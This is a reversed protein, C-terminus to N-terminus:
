GILVIGAIDRLAEGALMFGAVPPVFSVSGPIHRGHEEPADPPTRPPEDSWLVRLGKIGRRRCEARMVRALPCVSTQEIDTIRFRSPDVKNGTGMCCVIPISAAKAREILLLKSSVTDIADIIYDYASLPYADATRADYFVDNAHFILAPNIDLARREAAETKKQGVTSHLALLQRNINSLSVTDADFVSLEGVGARALAEICAGGVGGAGFVAVHARRFTAVADRGLMLETRSFESM